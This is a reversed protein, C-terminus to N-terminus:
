AQGGYERETVRFQGTYTKGQDELVVAGRERDLFLVKVDKSLYKNTYLAGRGALAARFDDKTDHLLIQFTHRTPEADLVVLHLYRIKM